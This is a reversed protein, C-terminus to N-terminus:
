LETAPVALKRELGKVFSVEEIKGRMGVITACDPLGRSGGQTMNYQITMVMFAMGPSIRYWLHPGKWSKIQLYNRAMADVFV